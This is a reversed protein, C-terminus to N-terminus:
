MKSGVLLKSLSGFHSNKKIKLIHTKKWKEGVLYPMTEVVFFNRHGTNEIFEKFVLKGKLQVRKGSLTCVHRKLLM